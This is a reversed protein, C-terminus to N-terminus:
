WSLESENGVWICDSKLNGIHGSQILVRDVLVSNSRLRERTNRSLLHRFHQIGRISHSVSQRYNWTRIDDRVPKSQALLSGRLFLM